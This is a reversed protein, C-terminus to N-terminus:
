SPEGLAQRIEAWLDAIDKAALARSQQSGGRFERAVRGSLAATIHPKRHMVVTKAVPITQGSGAVFEQAEAHLGDSAVADNVVVLYNVGLEDAIGVATESAMIDYSSPRIPIITIDAAEMAERIESAAGPATDIFVYDWIQGVAITRDVADAVTDCGTLLEPQEPGGSNHRRGYWERLSGTPDTDVVAIPRTGGESAQVALSTTLTTKGVGGKSNAIAVLKM